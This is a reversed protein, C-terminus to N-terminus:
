IKNVDWLALMLLIWLRKARMESDMVGRGNVIDSIYKKDFYKMVISQSDLCLDGIMDKLPGNTWEVLPIEFGRPILINFPM